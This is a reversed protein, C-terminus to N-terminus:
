FNLHQPIRIESINIRPVVLLKMNLGDNKVYQYSATPIHFIYLGSWQSVIPHPHLYYIDKITFTFM